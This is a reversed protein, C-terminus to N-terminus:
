GYKLCLGIVAVITSICTVAVGLSSVVIGILVANSLSSGSESGIFIM